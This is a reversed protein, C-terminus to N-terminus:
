VEEYILIRNNHPQFWSSLRALSWSLDHARNGTPKVFVFSRGCNLLRLFLRELLDDNLVSPHQIFL